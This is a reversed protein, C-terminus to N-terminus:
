CLFAIHLKFPKTCHHTYVSETLPKFTIINVAREGHFCCFINKARNTVYTTIKIWSNNGVMHLLNIHKGLKCWILSLALNDGYPMWGVRPRYLVCCLPDKPLSALYLRRQSAWRIMWFFNDKVKLRWWCAMLRLGLSLPCPGNVESVYQPFM